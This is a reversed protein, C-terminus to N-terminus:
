SHRPRTMVCEHHSIDQRRRYWRQCTGCTFGDAVQVAPVQPAVFRHWSIDQRRRFSGNCTECTFGEATRRPPDCPAVCKHWSMDQKRWFSRQCVECTFLNAAQSSPDRVSTALVETTCGGSEKSHLRPSSAQVAREIWGERSVDPVLHRWRHQVEKLRKVSQREMEAQNKMHQVISLYGALYSSRLYANM